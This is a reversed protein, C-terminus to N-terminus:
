FEANFIKCVIIEKLERLFGAFLLGVKSILLGLRLSM